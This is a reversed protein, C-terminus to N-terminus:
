AGRTEWAVDLARPLYCRTWMAKGSFEDVVARKASVERDKAHVSFSHNQIISKQNRLGEESGVYFVCAVCQVINGDNSAWKSAFCSASSALVCSADFEKM